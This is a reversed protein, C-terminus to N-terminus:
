AGGLAALRRCEEALTVLYPDGERRRLMLLTITQQSTYPPVLPILRVRANFSEMRGPLLSYGVGGSILNTLSFIDGVRMAVQPEYGARRFAQQFSAATAFDDELCVFKENRVETLDLSNRRAYPSDAPVAFFISDEFLPVALLQDDNVPESLAIVIADLRGERLQELLLRNSGLTLDIDLASNRLKMRVLLPPMTRTTLSYLSGVKLRPASLGAIERVRRVGEEAEHLARQAHEALAYATQLPILKRGDLKFLPCGVAQELSHLARHVSVVSYSLRESVKPMNGLQMFALFVELKKLTFGDDIAM